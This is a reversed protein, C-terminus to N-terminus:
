LEHGARDLIAQRAISAITEAQRKVAYRAMAEVITTRASRENDWGMPHVRVGELDKYITFFHEVEKLFHPAV